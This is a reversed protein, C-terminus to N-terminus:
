NNKALRLAKRVTPSNRNMRSCGNGAERLLTFFRADGFMTANLLVLRATPREGLATKPSRDAIREAAEVLAEATIKM